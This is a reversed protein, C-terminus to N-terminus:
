RAAERIRDATAAVVAPENMFEEPSVSRENAAYLLTEIDRLAETDTCGRKRLINLVASIGRVYGTVRATLAIDHFHNKRECDPTRM